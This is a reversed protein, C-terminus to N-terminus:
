GRTIWSYSSHAAACERAARVCGIARGRVATGQQQPVPVAMGFAAIGQPLPQGPILPRATQVCYEAHPASYTSAARARLPLGSAASGPMSQLLRNEGDEHPLTFPALTTDASRKVAFMLCVSACFLSPLTMFSFLLPVPMQDTHLLVQIGHPRSGRARCLRQTASCRVHGRLQLKRRSRSHDWAAGNRAKSTSGPKGRGNRRTSSSGCAWTAARRRRRWSFASCAM